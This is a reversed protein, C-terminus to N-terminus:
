YGLNGLFIGENEVFQYALEKGKVHHFAQANKEYEFYFSGSQYVRNKLTELGSDFFLGLVKTGVDILLVSALCSKSWNLDLEKILLGNQEFSFVKRMSGYLHVKPILAFLQNKQILLVKDSTNFIRSPKDLTPVYSCLESFSAQSSDMKRLQVNEIKHSKIIIDHLNM